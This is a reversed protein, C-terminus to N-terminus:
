SLVRFKHKDVHKARCKYWIQHSLNKFIPVRIGFNISENFPGDHAYKPLLIEM